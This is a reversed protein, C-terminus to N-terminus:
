SDGFRDLLRRLYDREAEPREADQARRRIDDFIERAREPNSTPPGVQGEGDTGGIARGLPDRGSGREGDREGQGERGRERIEAALTDAGERMNDLAANQAARAGDMDGRRLADEAQRMARSAENLADSPAAGGEDAMRQAEALGERIDAQRAALDDGGMGGQQEGGSGGASQQNQQQQQEQQQQQQQQTENNLARQEGMTQSLRDMGEQMRGEEGDEGEGGGSQSESLRVDMNALIQSLQELMQQAEAHRGQETLREIQRMMNDIDRASLETQEQTDEVNQQQGNRMAEQVLSQMYNKTAERMAEMLQRLKEPSAGQELAEALQRQIEEVARRADAAGGYEARLATRWLTDAAIATEDIHEAASLESRALRLGLYVALDRFYGDQPAMTLSDLLRAARRVGEPARRLPPNRSTDQVEIRADARQAMPDRITQVRARPPDRYPRRDTLLHRRIEIAARAVPQLFIKEPMTFRLPTSLGEQGLADHAVMRAEVEMGAYPHAALDIAARAEAERPAGAPAELETDIPDARLLGRPPNVPRVRLFVRRVGYDDVARWAISVRDNAEGVPPATFAIRPAADRAPQLRWSARTHFRVIKLAGAGPIDMQAEWAGDAARTFRAERRVGMGSFVLKPAGAPGSVRVTASISPPTEVAQGLRDSLSMPPAHTYNAPTVWAEVQMPRDGLLPGPDPLFAHALREPGAAGAFIAAGALAALLGYRLYFRDVGGLKLRPGRTRADKVRALAADQARAWLAMSFADYRAPQDGLAEFAGAEIKSDEALRARAEAQSPPRWARRARLALVAFGALAALAAIPQAFFPLAAHAGVLALAAWAAIAALLWFGARAARELALNRRARKTERALQAIADAHKM